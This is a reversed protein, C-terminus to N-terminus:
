FEGGTYAEDNRAKRGLRSLSLTYAWQTGRLTRRKKERREAGMNPRFLSLTYAWQAGL